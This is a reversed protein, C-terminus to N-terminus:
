GYKGEIMRLKPRSFCIKRLNGCARVSKQLMVKALGVRQDWIGIQVVDHLSWQMHASEFLGVFTAFCSMKTPPKSCERSDSLAMTLLPDPLVFIPVTVKGSM